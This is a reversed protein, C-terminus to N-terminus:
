RRYSAALLGVNGAQALIQERLAAPDFGRKPALPSPIAYLSFLFTEPKGQPPCISYGNKGFGNKGTIAGAPLKDAEIGELSPDLGAVAWDFFLAENVPEMAMAFLILEKSDAPVGQWKLTPWTDKGDCTYTPPLSGTGEASAVLDPSSVLISAVTAQAREQPTPGPEPAGEPLVIPPAKKGKGQGQGQSSAPAQPAKGESGKAQSDKGQGPSSKATATTETQAQTSPASATTPEPDDSGGCASLALLAAAALATASAAKAKAWPAILRKAGTREEM